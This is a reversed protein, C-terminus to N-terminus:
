AQVGTAKAIAADVVALEQTFNAIELARRCDLLAEMMEPVAAILWANAQLNVLSTLRKCKAIEAGNEATVLGIQKFNAKWPGPTHKGTPKAQSADVLM